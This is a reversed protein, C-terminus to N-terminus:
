VVDHLSLGAEFAVTFALVVVADVIVARAADETFLALDTFFGSLDGGGSISAFLAFTLSFNMVTDVVMAGSADETFLALRAITLSPSFVGVFGLHINVEIGLTEGLLLILAERTLHINVEVSLAEGLLVLPERLLLVLSERLLLILAERLIALHINVEVSLTEGLLLVLTERLLLVLSERLLLVLAEGLLLILTERLLVLSEGLLLILTERLLLLTLGLSINVKSHIHTAERAHRAHVESNRTVRVGLILLSSNGHVDSSSERAESLSNLHLERAGHILLNSELLLLTELLLLLELLLSERVLAEVSINVELLGLENVRVSFLVAELAVTFTFIVVANVMVAGAADETFLALDTVFGSLDGSANVFAFLALTLSFDMIADVVVVGSADETSFALRARTFSICLNCL